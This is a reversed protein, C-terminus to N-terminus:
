LIVTDAKRIGNNTHTTLTRVAQYLLLEVERNIQRNIQGGLTKSLPRLVGCLQLQGLCGMWPRWQPGRCPATSLGLWKGPGGGSSCRLYVELWGQLMGVSGQSGPKVKSRGPSKTLSSMAGAQVTAVRLEQKGERASSGVRTARQCCHQFISLTHIFSM